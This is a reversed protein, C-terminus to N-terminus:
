AGNRVGAASSQRALGSLCETMGHGVGAGERDTEVARQPSLLESGMNFFHRGIHGDQHGRVGICAQGIFETLIVLRWGFHSRQNAFKSM